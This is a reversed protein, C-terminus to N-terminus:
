TSEIRRGMGARCSTVDEAHHWSKKHSPYIHVAHRQKSPGFCESLAARCMSGSLSAHSARDGDHRGANARPRSSENIDLRHGLLRTLPGGYVMASTHLM